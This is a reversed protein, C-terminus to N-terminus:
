VGLTSCDNGPAQPAQPEGDGATQPLFGDKLRSSQPANGNLPATLHSHGSDNVRIKM